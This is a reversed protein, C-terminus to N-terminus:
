WSLCSVLDNVVSFDRDGLIVVDYATKYREVMTANSPDNLFGVRLVTFNAPLTDDPPVMHPDGLSDGILLINDRSSSAFNCWRAVAQAKNYSHITPESISVLLGTKDFELQNSVITINSYLDFFCHIAESIINSIGASVICLPVNRRELSEFFGRVGDRFRVRSNQVMPRIDERKVEAKILLEHAKEWWEDMLKSKETHNLTPSYELPFYHDKLKKTETRFFDPLSPCTEIVGHCTDYRQGDEDKYRTLTMDFDTVVQFHSSGSTWHRCMRELKKACLESVLVDKEDRLCDLLSQARVHRRRRRNSAYLIYSICSLGATAAVAAVARWGYYAM